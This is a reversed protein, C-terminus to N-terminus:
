VDKRGKIKERLLGLHERMEEVTYCKGNKASKLGKDLEASLWTEYEKKLIEKDYPEKEEFLYAQFGYNHKEEVEKLHVMFGYSQAEGRIYTYEQGVVLNEEKFTTGDGLYDHENAICVIKRETQDFINVLKIQESM